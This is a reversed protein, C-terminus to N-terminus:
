KHGLLVGMLLDGLVVVATTIAMFLFEEKGIHLAHFPCPPGEPPVVDWLDHLNEYAALKCDHRCSEALRM